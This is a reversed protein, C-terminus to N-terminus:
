HKYEYLIIYLLERLEDRIDESDIDLDLNGSLYENLMRLRDLDVKIKVETMTSTRILYKNEM